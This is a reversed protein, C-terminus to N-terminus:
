QDWWDLLQLRPYYLAARIPTEAGKMLRLVRAYLALQPAFQSRLKPLLDEPRDADEHASKYDVIWWANDGPELPSLGGRFARDVRVTRIKGEIQGAWAAESSADPHPSLIWRGHPEDAAALATQMAKEALSKAAPFEFGASRIQAVIRPRIRELGKLADAWDMGSRLQALEQLLRHIATGLARSLLGGEHREFLGTPTAQGVLRTARSRQRQATEEFDFDDPLRRLRTPPDIAPMQLINSQAEKAAVTELVGEQAGARWDEFREHIEEKLAPWATALLSNRPEVLTLGEDTEKYTPRAFFHLEERARTAAVYLIRKSEEVERERRVRDVWAKAGGRKAGKSPLPAVLFETAEGSEDEGALGRELWSLMEHNSFNDRAQLEPVLVVEFELGKAKHITMLQVGVEGSAEPDPLAMLREEGGWRNIDSISNPLADLSKWLLNLNTRAAADVTADGGLELWIQELWTGATTTAPTTRQQYCRLVHKARRQGDASLLPMREELLSPISRAFLQEDDNSTLTHLDKLSLGCWPARLVGLWAVRDFPQAWAKALALADLVEQRDRLNETDLARFPIGAKRLADAIPTLSKRTRALVAIRFKTDSGEARQRKARELAPQKEHVINVIQEIQSKFEDERIAISPEDNNLGHGSAPIFNVHLSFNADKRAQGERVAIAEGFAVGNGAVAGFVNEFAQNTWEVLQPHTRFNARLPVFDLPYSAGSEMELGLAKVRAFLEADADRFFYISQMPDGVLFCSKGEVDSWAGILSRLLAHQRRSTDQFEDVLLHQIGDAVAWAAESQIGEPNTLVLAAAHAVETFDTVGREAFLVKLEAAAHRLLIFCSRLISWEEDTYRSPPLYQVGALAERLGPLVALAAVTQEFRAKAAKGENSAPFGQNSKLGKASRWIGDKTLLFNSLCIYKELVAELNSDPRPAPLEFCGSLALPSDNGPTECAFRALALVEDLLGSISTFQAHVASLAVVIARAFPRELQARLGNWDPDSALVFDLMWRDRQMLMEALLTEWEQWNNDRWSLLQEVAAAVPGTESSIQELTRRAATRYLSAPNPDINLQGSLQTLLPQQLALERCFSDITRIRLQEPLDLIRWGLSDAHRLAREALDNGEPERLADLIRNRMESAAANTFTIAVIQKPDDVEGLLKLFRQTLLSTKGSGAPAQVIISRSTDIARSRENHDPPLRKGIPSTM